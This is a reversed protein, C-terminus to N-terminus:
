IKSWDEDSYKKIESAKRPLGFKDCWKRIANDSVGFQQGIQTFPKNRILDKLEDRTVPMKELPIVRNKTHCELCRVSRKDIEKGCDVCYYKKTLIKKNKGNTTPLQQNCNPCVWRLNELRDDKNHGNIHDLILTLEKGQWIPEQGCISCVYPTYQGKLYWRRLTSQDATSNEIFINEESRAVPRKHLTSFHETSIELEDIRKRIKALSDGSTASYGLKQSIERMSRSQKVIQKFEEDSYTDILAKM